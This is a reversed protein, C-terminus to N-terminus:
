RRRGRRTGASARCTTTTATSSGPRASRRSRHCCAGVSRDDLRRGAGHSRADGDARRADAGQPRAPQARRDPDDVPGPPTGPKGFERARAPPGAHRSLLRRGVRAPDRRVAREPDDAHRTASRRMSAGSRSGAGGPRHRPRDPGRDPPRRGAGHLCAATLARAAPATPGGFQAPDSARGRRHTPDTGLDVPRDVRARHDADGVGVRHREASWSPDAVPTHRAVGM